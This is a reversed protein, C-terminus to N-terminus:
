IEYKELGVAGCDQSDPQVCSLTIPLCLCADDGDGGDDDDGDEDSHFLVLSTLLLMVLVSHPSALSMLSHM